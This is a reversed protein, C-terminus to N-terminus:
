VTCRGSSSADTSRVQLGVPKVFVVIKQVDGYAAFVRHVLQATIPVTANQVTVLLIRNPRQDAGSHHSHHSHHQRDHREHLEQNRSFNVAVQQLGDDEYSLPTAAVVRAAAAVDTLEVLAQVAAHPTPDGSEAGVGAFLANRKRLFVSKVVPADLPQLLRFFLDRETWHAPLREFFLVKSPLPPPQADSASAAATIHSDSM